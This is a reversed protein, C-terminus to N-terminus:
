GSRHIYGIVIAAIFLLLMLLEFVKFVGALEGEVKPESQATRECSSGRVRRWNLAGEILAFILGVVFFSLWYLGVTRSGVPTFWVGGAWSGLFVIAFFVLIRPWSRVCRGLAIFVITLFFAIGLAFVGDAFIM